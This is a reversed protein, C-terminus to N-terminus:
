LDYFLITIMITHFEIKSLGNDFFDRKGKCRRIIYKFTLYIHSIITFPPPLIPRM